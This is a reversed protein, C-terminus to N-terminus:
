QRQERLQGRPSYAVCEDGTKRWIPRTIKGQGIIKGLHQKLMGIWGRLQFDDAGGVFLHLHDPMIVYRGVAVNQETHARIGFEVFAANVSKAALLKRRRNTCVTVFFVPNNAFIRILRPPVKPYDNMSRRLQLRRGTPPAIAAGPLMIGTTVSRMAFRGAVRTARTVRASDKAACGVRSSRCSRQLRGRYSHHV